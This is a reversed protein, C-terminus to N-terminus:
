PHKKADEGLMQALASRGRSVRSKMTGTAVHCIEAAEEYSFGSAGVLLLAERQESPLKQLAQETDSLHLRDEQSAEEVMAPQASDEEYSTERALRRRDNLFHNRMITFTWARMNTGPDFRDRATWAKLVTEQVLDDAYDSRGCLGRGFARLHPLLGILQRRFAEDKQREASSDIM